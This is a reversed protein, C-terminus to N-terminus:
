WSTFGRVGAGSSESVCGVVDKVFLDQIEGGGWARKGIGTRVCQGSGNDKERSIELCEHLFSLQSANCNM